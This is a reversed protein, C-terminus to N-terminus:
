FYELLENLRNDFKEFSYKENVAKQAGKSLRQRYSDNSLTEFADVLGENDVYDVFLGDEGETVVYQAGGEPSAIVPLGYSMAELYVLGFGEGKSPM